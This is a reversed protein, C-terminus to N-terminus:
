ATVLGHKSVKGVQQQRCDYCVPMPVPAAIQQGGAVFTQLVTVITVAAPVKAAEESHPGHGDTIAKDTCPACNLDM